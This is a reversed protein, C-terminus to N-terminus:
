HKGDNIHIDVDIITVSNKNQNSEVKRSLLSAFLNIFKTILYKIQEMHPYIGKWSNKNNNLFLSNEM